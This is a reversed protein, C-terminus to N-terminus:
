SVPVVRRNGGGNSGYPTCGAAEILQQAITRNRGIEATRHADSNVAVWRGGAERYWRLVTELTDNWGPEHTLFRTNLELVRGHEALARMADRVPTEIREIQPPGFRSTGPWFIRDFHAIIDCEVTAAIQAIEGFYRAYVDYVDHGDFCRTYHINQGALWHMSGIVVDFNYSALLVDVEARHEHPNGLELGSLLTLGRPAFRAQCTRVEDFYRDFDPRQHERAAAMRRPRHRRDPDIGVQIAQECLEAITNNGDLSYTSHMHLDSLIM